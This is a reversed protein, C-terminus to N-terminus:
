NKPCTADKDRERGTATRYRNKADASSHCFGQRELRPNVIFIKLHSGAQAAVPVATREERGM